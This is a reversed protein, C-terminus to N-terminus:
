NIKRRCAPGFHILWIDDVAAEEIETMEAEQKDTRQTNDLEM